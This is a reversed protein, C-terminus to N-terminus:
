VLLWPISVGGCSGTPWLCALSERVSLALDFHGFIRPPPTIGLFFLPKIICQLNTRYYKLTIMGNKCLGRKCYHFM